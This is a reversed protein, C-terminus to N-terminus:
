APAVIALLVLGGILGAGVYLRLGAGRRRRSRPGAVPRAQALRAVAAVSVPGGRTPRSVRVRMAGPRPGLGSLVCPPPSGLRIGCVDLSASSRPRGPAVPIPGTREDTASRRILCAM